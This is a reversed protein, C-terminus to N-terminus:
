AAVLAFARGPRLWAARSQTARAERRAADAEPGVDGRRLPTGRQARAQMSRPLCACRLLRPGIPTYEAMLRHSIRVLGAGSLRDWQENPM